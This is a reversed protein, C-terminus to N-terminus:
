LVLKEFYEDYRLVVSEWDYKLIYERMSDNTAPGEKLFQRTKHLLESPTHYYHNAYEPENLHEPFALRNPLIPFCGAAIAEVASIGFFDQNSTVPLIDSSLLLQYYERRSSAFGFHLIRDKLRVRAHDFIKPYNKYSEGAIIVQFDLNKDALQFLTNFFLDPNKDYEWRHNWLIIPTKSEKIRSQSLDSLDLGIPLVDSKRRISDLLSHHNNDPFQGLFAPLAQLFSEKHFVSNFLIYDSGLCSVFNIWGYHNDRKLKVDPDDESWPYTIQNEHFYTIVPVNTFWSKSNGLASLTGRFEAINMLDSCLIIDFKDDLKLIEHAFHVGAHHMRWKWHRGPLSILHFKHKSHTILGDAWQQHSSTYFSELLLIKM